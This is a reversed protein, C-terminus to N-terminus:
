KRKQKLFSYRNTKDYLEKIYNEWVEMIERKDPVPKIDWQQIEVNRNGKGNRSELEKAKLYMLDYPSLKVYAEIDSHNGTKKKRLEINWKKNNIINENMILM